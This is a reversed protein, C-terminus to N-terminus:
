NTGHQTLTGASCYNAAEGVPLAFQHLVYFNQGLSPGSTSVKQLQALLSDTERAKSNM